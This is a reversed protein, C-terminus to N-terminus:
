YSGTWANMRIQRGANSNSSSSFVTYRWSQGPVHFFSLVVSEPEDRYKSIKTCEPGQSFFIFITSYRVAFRLFPM